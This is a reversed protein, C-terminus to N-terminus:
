ENRLAEEAKDSCAKCRPRTNCNAINELVARAEVLQREATEARQVLTKGYVQLSEWFIKAAGEPTYNKGFSISGDTLNIHVLEAGIQLFANSEQKHFIM